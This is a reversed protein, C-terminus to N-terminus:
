ATAKGGENKLSAPIRSLAGLKKRPGLKRRPVTGTELETIIPCDSKQDGLCSDALAKLTSIMEQLEVVKHKLTIIHGQAIKKVSASKRTRDRWLKLLERIEEVKFGLDRSRRIFNLVQVDRDSYIRYGSDSRGASAILGVSEYYRIMKASIGSAKATEGINM